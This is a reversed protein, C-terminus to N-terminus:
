QQRAQVTTGLLEMHEASFVQRLALDLVRQLWPSGNGDPSVGSPFLLATLHQVMAHQDDMLDVPFMDQVALSLHSM